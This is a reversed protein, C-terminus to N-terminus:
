AMRRRHANAEDEWCFARLHGSRNCLECKIPPRIAANPCKKMVHGRQRCSNCINDADAYTSRTPATANGRTPPDRESQTLVTEHEISENDMALQSDLAGSLRYDSQFKLALEEININPQNRYIQLISPKYKTACGRLFQSQLERNTLVHEYQFQINVLREYFEIPDENGEM